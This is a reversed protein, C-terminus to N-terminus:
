VAEPPFREVANKLKTIGEAMLIVGGIMAMAATIPELTGGNAQTHLIPLAIVGAGPIINTIMPAILAGFQATYKNMM